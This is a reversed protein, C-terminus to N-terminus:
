AQKVPVVKEGKPILKQLMSEASEGASIPVGLALMKNLKAEEKSSMERGIKKIFAARLKAMRSSSKGKKAAAEDSIPKGMKCAEGPGVGYIEGDPMICRAFDYSNEESFDIGEACMEQFKQLAEKTFYSM